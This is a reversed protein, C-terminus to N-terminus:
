PPSVPENGDPTLLAAMVAIDVDFAILRVSADGFVFHVGAEHASGWDDKYNCYSGAVAPGDPTLAPAGRSTGKSGGLFYPEDFYWNDAQVTRDYSKEGVFITNSLGDTFKKESNCVPRNEFGLLNVGYDTRAWHWGGSQYKGFADAAVVATPRPARRSPCLYLPMASSWDRENFIATQDLYPLLAYGWSGTQERPALLPDGVGFRYAANTTFDFTEPTFPSGAVDLITQKGDWGGNSPFVKTSALHNALAIGIQHLNNSCTARDAAARMKQIAPLLLSFLMGLIALVVLLETLTFATRRPKM